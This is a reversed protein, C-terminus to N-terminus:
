WVNIYLPLQKIHDILALCFTIVNVSNYCYGITWLYYTKAFPIKIQSWILRIIVIVLSLMLNIESYHKKERLGHIPKRM